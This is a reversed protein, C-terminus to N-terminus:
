MQGLARSNPWLDSNKSFPRFHRLILASTTRLVMQARLAGNEVWERSHGLARANPWLDSIDLFPQFHTPFNTRLMLNVPAFGGSLVCLTRTRPSAGRLARLARRPATPPASAGGGWIYNLALFITSIATLHNVLMSKVQM